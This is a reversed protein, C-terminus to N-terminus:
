KGKRFRECVTVYWALLAGAILLGGIIDTFWHFGSLLRSLVTLILFVLDACLLVRRVTGPYFYRRILFAASGFVVLSLLTHSSPYSPELVGNELVPRYNVALKDFLVYLILTAAYLCGLALIEPDVKTLSRRRILQRVGLCAFLVALLIALLGMTKSVDYWITSVGIIDRVAGNVAAFGVSSANPGIPKVDVLKILITFLLAGLTFGLAAQEKKDTGAKKNM